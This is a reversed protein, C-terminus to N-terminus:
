GQVLRCKCEIHHVQGTTGQVVSRPRGIVELTVGGVAARDSRDISTGAPLFLWWTGTAQDGDVRDDIEDTQQALGLTTFATGDTLKTSGYADATETSRPTITVTQQM